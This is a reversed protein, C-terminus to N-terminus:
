MKWKSIWGFELCKKFFSVMNESMECGIWVMNLNFIYLLNKLMESFWNMANESAQTGTSSITRMRSGFLHIAYLLGFNPASDQVWCSFSTHVNTKTETKIIIKDTVAHFKTPMGSMLLGVFFTETLWAGFSVPLKGNPNRATIQPNKMGGQNPPCHMRWKLM